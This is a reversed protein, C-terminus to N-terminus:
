TNSYELRWPISVTVVAWGPSAARGSPDALFRVPSPVPAVDSRVRLGVGTAIVLATGTKFLAQVADAYRRLATVDVGEPGYLRVVYFGTEEMSADAAPFTRARGSGLVFEEEGYPRGAVPTLRVNEWGMLAPLGVTLSRGAGAAEVTCGGAITLLTATVATITGRTTVAFGAPTVEMGAAFGDTLFSGASRQYGAATAELTTSGTTCVALTRLRTRLALQVALRDVAM